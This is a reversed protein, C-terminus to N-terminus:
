RAGATGYEVISPLLSESVTRACGCTAALEQGWRPRGPASGTRHPLARVSKHVRIANRRPEMRQVAVFSAQISRLSIRIRRLLSRWRM